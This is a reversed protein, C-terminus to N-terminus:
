NLKTCYLVICPGRMNPTYYFMTCYFTGEYKTYLVVYYLIYIYYLLLAGRLYIYLVFVPRGLTTTYLLLFFYSHSKYLYLFVKKILATYLLLMPRKLYNHSINCYSVAEHNIYTVIALDELTQINCHFHWKYYM